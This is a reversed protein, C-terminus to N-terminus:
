DSKEAMVIKTKFFREQFEVLASIQPKTYTKGCPAVVLKDEVDNLRHVIAICKGSFEKMPRFVGLVYVDIEEGDSAKTGPMYGYNVPYVYGHTPHKSGLPRDMVVDVTQGLYKRLDM